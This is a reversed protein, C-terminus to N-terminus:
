KVWIVRGGAAMKETYATCRYSTSRVSFNKDVIGAIRKENCFPCRNNKEKTSEMCVQCFHNGCCATLFPDQMIQFCVPCDFDKSPSEVFELCDSFQKLAM